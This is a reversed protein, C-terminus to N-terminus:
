RCLGLPTLSPTFSILLHFYYVKSGVEELQEQAVASVGNESVPQPAQADSM